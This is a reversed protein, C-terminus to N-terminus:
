FLHPAGWRASPSLPCVHSAAAIACTPFVRSTAILRPSWTRRILLVPLSYPTPSVISSQGAARCVEPPAAALSTQIPGLPTSPRPLRPHVLPLLQYPIFAGPLPPRLFYYASSSLRSRSRSRLPHPFPLFPRVPWIFPLFSQADLACYQISLCSLPRLPSRLQCRTTSNPNQTPLSARPRAHGFANRRISCPCTHRIDYADDDGYQSLTSSEAFGSPFHNPVM